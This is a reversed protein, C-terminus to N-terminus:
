LRSLRIGSLCMHPSSAKMLTRYLEMGKISRGLEKAAIGPGHMRWISGPAPHFFPSSTRRRARKEQRALGQQMLHHQPPSMADSSQVSLAGGCIHLGCVLESCIQPSQLPLFSGTELDLRLQSFIGVELARVKGEGMRLSRKELTLKWRLSRM